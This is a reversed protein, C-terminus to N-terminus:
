ENESFVLDGALLVHGQTDEVVGLVALVLVGVLGPCIKLTEVHDLVSM